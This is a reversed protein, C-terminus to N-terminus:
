ALATQKETPQYPPAGIAREIPEFTSLIEPKGERVAVMHEYHASTSADATRVTWGDPDTKVEAAGQNIMPEICIVLGSRLKTGEGAPGHNPVQPDEWLSRGVGHGCLDHVIGYGACHEEVAAGIDGTYRGAVAQEVGLMLSEYTVRCLRRDEESIEGVAFTYASDGVYKNLFVGCDVSLLDGAQLPTDSPIGHVVASGVSTCLTAPFVEGGAEHGKFAPEGGHDRIFTEAVADLELPTVGPEVRRGVEALTHAVLSASERLLGIERESKIQIMGFTGAFARRLYKLFSFM